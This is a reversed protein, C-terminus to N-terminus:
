GEVQPITRVRKVRPVRELLHFVLHGDDTIATGRHKWDVGPEHELEVGTPAVTFERWTLVKFAPITAWFYVGPGSKPLAVHVIEAKTALEVKHTRGDIPVPFKHITRLTM